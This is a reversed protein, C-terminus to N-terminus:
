MPRGVFAEPFPSPVAPGIQALRFKETMYIQRSTEVPKAHKAAMKGRKAGLTHPRIAPAAANPGHDGALTIEGAWM